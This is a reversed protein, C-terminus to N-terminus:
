QGTCQFYREFSVFHSIHNRTFTILFITSEILCHAQSVKFRLEGVPPEAFPIGKFSYFYRGQGAEERAASILGQRLQVVVRAKSHYTRNYGEGRVTVLAVMVTAWVVTVALGPAM